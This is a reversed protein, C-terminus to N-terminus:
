RVRKPAVISERMILTPELRRVVRRRQPSKLRLMLLRVAEQGIETTPQAIVSLRPEFADAWEFDDFGVVSVDKPIKLGLRRLGGVVGLSIAGSGSFVATPPDPLRMLQKVAVEAAASQVIGSILLSADVAIGAGEHAETWGQIREGTTSAGAPGAIMGIRRHGVAVLRSVMERVPQVNAVLVHDFNADVKQDIMVVAMNLARLNGLTESTIGPTPALILGDVPWRCFNDVAALELAPDEHSNAVLLTRGANRCGLEAGRIVSTSFANGIDSAVFGISETTSRRLARAVANPRYGTAELAGKVRARLEDSVARSGNVVHSVSTVSVGALRAVDALKVM